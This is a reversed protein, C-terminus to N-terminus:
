AFARWMVYSSACAALALSGLVAVMELLLARYQQRVERGAELGLAVDPEEGDGIKDYDTTHDEDRKAVRWLHRGTRMAMYIVGTAWVDVARPDFEKDVYEEPAIYPASGCLGATMHAEVTENNLENCIWIVSQKSILLRKDIITPFVSLLLLRNNRGRQSM